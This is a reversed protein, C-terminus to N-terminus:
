NVALCDAAHDSEPQNCEPCTPTRKRLSEVNMYIGVVYLSATVAWIVRYVASQQTGVLFFCAIAGAISLFLDGKTRM